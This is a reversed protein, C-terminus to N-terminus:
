LPGSPPIIPLSCVLPLEQQVLPPHSYSLGPNLAHEEGRAFEKMERILRERLYVEFDSKKSFTLPVVKLCIENNKEFFDYMIRQLNETKKENEIVYLQQFLFNLCNINMRKNKEHTSRGEQWDKMERILRKRLYVQFDSKKSFEYPEVKPCVKNHKEFFDCMVRQVIETDKENNVVSLQQFLFNICNVSM